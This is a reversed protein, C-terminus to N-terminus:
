DITKTNEYEWDICDPRNSFQLGSRSYLYGKQYYYGVKCIQTIRRCGCTKCIHEEKTGLFKDPIFDKNKTWTHNM